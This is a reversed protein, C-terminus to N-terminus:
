PSQSECTVRNVVSRFSAGTSSHLVVLVRLAFSLVTLPSCLSSRGRLTGSVVQVHQPAAQCHTEFSAECRCPRRKGLKGTSRLWSRGLTGSCRRAPTCEFHAVALPVWGRCRCGQLGKVQVKSRVAADATATERAHSSCVQPNFNSSSIRTGHPYVRSMQTKCYDVYARPEATLFKAATQM